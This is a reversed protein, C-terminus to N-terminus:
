TPPDEKHSLLVTGLKRENPKKNYESQLLSGLFTVLVTLELHVKLDPFIIRRYLVFSVAASKIRRKPTFLAVIKRLVLFM